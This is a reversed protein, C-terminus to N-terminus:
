IAEGAVRAVYDVFGEAANRAADYARAKEIVSCGQAMVIYSEYMCVRAFSAPRIGVLEGRDEPTQPVDAFDTCGIRALDVGSRSTAMSRDRNIFVRKVSMEPAALDFVPDLLRQSEVILTPIGDPSLPPLKLESFSSAPLFANVKAKEKEYGAIRALREAWQDEKKSM